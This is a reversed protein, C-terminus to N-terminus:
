LRSAHSPLHTTDLERSLVFAHKFPLNIAAAPNRSIVFGLRTALCIPLKQSLVM